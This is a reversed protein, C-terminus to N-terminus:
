FIEDDDSSEAAAVATPPTYRRCMQGVRAPTLGTIEAVLGVSLRGTGKECAAYVAPILKAEADDVKRKSAATLKEAERLLRRAEEVKALDDKTKEVIETYGAAEDELTKVM